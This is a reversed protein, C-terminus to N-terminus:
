SAASVAESAQRWQQALHHLIAESRGFIVNPVGAELGKQCSEAQPFDEDDLVAATGAHAAECQARDADTLIPRVSGTEMYVTCDGPTDGPYVRLMLTVSPAEVLICSPFLFYVATASFDFPWAQVKDGLEVQRFPFVWLAHPGFLDYISYNTAVKDVTKRHLVKFHYGEFNVSVALKWNTKLDFRRSAYHSRTAFDHDVLLHEVEDLYAEVDVDAALGVSILGARESVPLPRLGLADLDVGDFMSRDPVGSLRGDLEYTWAHYRCVFRRAAGCGQAVAAGRHSCANIFARLRGDQARTVLVPVGMVDRAIYTGPSAVEGAWGIVHPVRRFMAKDAELRRPSVYEERAIRCVDVGVQPAEKEIQARLREALAM